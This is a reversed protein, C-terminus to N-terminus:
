LNAYVYTVFIRILIVKKAKYPCCYRLVDNYTGYINKLKPFNKGFKKRM